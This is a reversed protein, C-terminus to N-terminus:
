AEKYPDYPIYNYEKLQAKLNKLAEAKTAGYGYEDGCLSADVSLCCKVIGDIEKLKMFEVAKKKSDFEEVYNQEEGELVVWSEWYELREMTNNNESYTKM